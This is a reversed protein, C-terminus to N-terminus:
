NIIYYALNDYHAPENNSMLWLPRRNDIPLADFSYVLKENIYYYCINNIQRFTIKNFVRANLGFSGSIMFPYGRLFPFVFHHIKNNFDTFTQIDGAKNSWIFNLGQGSDLNMCEMEIEFNADKPVEKPCNIKIGGKLKLVGDEVTAQSNPWQNKNDAFTDKFVMKKEQTTVADYTMKSDAWDPIPTQPNFLEDVYHKRRFGFYYTGGNQAADSSFMLSFFDGSNLVRNQHGRKLICHGLEHFLLMERMAPSIVYWSTSDLQISGDSNCYGFFGISSLNDFRVNTGTFSFTKNRSAAEAIFVKTLSDVERYAIDLRTLPVEVPAAPPPKEACAFLVCILLFLLANKM